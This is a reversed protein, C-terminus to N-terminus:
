LEDERIGYEKLVKELPIAKSLPTKERQKIIKYLGSHDALESMEIMTEYEEVPLIVVDMKNNRMVAVKELKKKKLKNLISGFNRSVVTSPLIEDKKYAVM